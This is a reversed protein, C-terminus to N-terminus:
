IEIMPLTFVLTEQIFDIEENNDDESYFTITNLVSKSIKKYQITEPECFVKYCSPKDLVFSFIIPQRLGNQISGHIVISKLHIKIITSLNLIKDNTYVGSSHAYM